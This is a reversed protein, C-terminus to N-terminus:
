LGKLDKSNWGARCASPRYQGGTRHPASCTAEDCISCTQFLDAFTSAAANQLKRTSSRFVLMEPVKHHSLILFLASARNPELVYIVASYHKVHREEVVIGPKWPRTKNTKYWIIGSSAQIRHGTWPPSASACVARHKKAGRRARSCTRFIQM